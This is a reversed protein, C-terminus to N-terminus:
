QLLTNRAYDSSEKPDGVHGIVHIPGGDRVPLYTPWRIKKTFKTGSEAAKYETYMYHGADVKYFREKLILIIRTM